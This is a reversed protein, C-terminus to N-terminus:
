KQIKVLKMVTDYLVSELSNISRERRRSILESVVPLLDNFTNTNQFLRLIPKFLQKERNSINLKINPIKDHFHVLKYALLLNHTANLEDLLYQFQEDGGTDLIESIDFRPQGVSCKLEVIRQNFGKARVSDPLREASLPRSAFHIGNTRNEKVMLYTLGQWDWGKLIDVKTYECRRENMILAIPKMKVYLAKVKKEM